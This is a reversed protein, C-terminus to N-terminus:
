CVWRGKVPRCMPVNDMSYGGEEFFIVDHGELHVVHVVPKGLKEHESSWFENLGQQYATSRNVAEYFNSGLPVEAQAGAGNPQLMVMVAYGHRSRQAVTLERQPLLSPKTMWKYWQEASARDTFRRHIANPFGTVQEAAGGVGYWSDYIGVNFGKVVAYFKRGM